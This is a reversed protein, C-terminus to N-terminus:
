RYLMVKVHHPDCTRDRDRAGSKRKASSKKQNSFFFYIFDALALARGSANITDTPNRRFSNPRVHIYPLGHQLLM